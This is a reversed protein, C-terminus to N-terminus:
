SWETKRRTLRNDWSARAVGVIVIRGPRKAVGVMERVVAARISPPMEHM